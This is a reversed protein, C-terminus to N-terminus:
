WLFSAAFHIHCRDYCHYCDYGGEEERDTIDDLLFLASVFADAAGECLGALFVM